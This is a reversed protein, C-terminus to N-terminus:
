CGCASSKIMPTQLTTNIANQNPTKPTNEVKHELHSTIDPEIQQYAGVLDATVEARVSMCAAFNQEDSNEPNSFRDHNAWVPEPCIFPAVLKTRVKSRPPTRSTLQRYSFAGRKQTKRHEDRAQRPLIVGKLGLIFIAGFLRMIRVMMTFIM